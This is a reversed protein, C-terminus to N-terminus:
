LIKMYIRYHLFMTSSCLLLLEDPGRTQKVARELWLQVFIRNMQAPRTGPRQFDQLPWFLDAEEPGIEPELPNQLLSILPMAGVARIDSRTLPVPIEALSFGCQVRVPVPLDSHSAPHSLATVRAPTSWFCPERGDDWACLDSLRCVDDSRILGWLIDGDPRNGFQSHTTLISLVNCSWRSIEVTVTNMYNSM